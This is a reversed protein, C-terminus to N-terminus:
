ASDFQSLHSKFSDQTTRSETQDFEFERSLKVKVVAQSNAQGQRPARNVEKM